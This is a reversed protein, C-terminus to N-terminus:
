RVDSLEEGVPFAKVFITEPPNQFYKAVAPCLWFRKEGFNYFCGAQDAMQGSGSRTAKATFNPIETASFAIVMENKANVKKAIESLVDSADELFPESMLGRQPDDFIWLPSKKMRRPTITFVANM